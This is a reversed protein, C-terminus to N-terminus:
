ASLRMNINDNIKKNKPHFRIQILNKMTQKYTNGNSIWNDPLPAKFGILRNLGAVNKHMNYTMVHIEMAFITKRKTM